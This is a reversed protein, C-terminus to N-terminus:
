GLVSFSSNRNIERRRAYHGLDIDRGINPLRFRLPAADHDHGNECEAILHAMLRGATPANKFQNGSTGIAVYFGDLDTRDYIPIWDDSVDYLEVTGRTPGTVPLTPMRQAARYLQVTYQDTFNRDFNDPDVWDLPDCAPNESGILLHNGSDPRAYAGVDSDTLICGDHEFDFGPPSPVHAVEQRLARTRINMGDQVGAMANVKGSHPGAVNVVVPADIRAGDALTVGAVRGGQRRIAVIDANFRFAAGRAEAARQVNHAALQPDNVYGADPFYVAGDLAPGTPEGFGADDMRKAPAFRRLDHFPLKRLIQARDWDEWPIGIEDMRECMPHLYDNAETRLVMCGANRFEALGREDAVGLHAAWNRWIFVGEYALACGDLTSYHFRVIACSGSTSGYGAAPLRDINLTRFGRKALEFGVCSGVIGAGIVIADYSADM